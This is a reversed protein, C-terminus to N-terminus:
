VSCAVHWESYWVGCAMSFHCAGCAMGFHWVDCAMGFHRVSCAMGCSVCWLRCCIVCVMQSAVQWVLHGVSFAM